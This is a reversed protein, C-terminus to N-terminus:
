WQSPLRNGASSGVPKFHCDGGFVPRWCHNWFVPHVCWLYIGFSTSSLVSFLQIVHNNSIKVHRFLGFISLSMGMNFPSIYWWCNMNGFWEGVEGSFLRKGFSPILFSLSCCTLVALCLLASPPNEDVHLRWYAGFLYAVLMWAFSYGKKLVFPDDHIVLSSICLLAFLLLLLQRLVKKEMARIGPNLLPMFLVLLFYATFYWYEGTVIPFLSRIWDSLTVHGSFFSFAATVTIGTVFVQLWISQLRKWPNSSAICLFGTALLFLNVCTLSVGRLYYWAFRLGGGVEDSMTVGCETIHHVIVLIVALTKVCDIRYDRKKTPVPNM